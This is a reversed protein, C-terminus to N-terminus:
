RLSRKLVWAAESQEHLTVPRSGGYFDSCSREWAAEARNTECSPCETVQEDHPDVICGCPRQEWGDALCTQCLDGSTLQTACGTCAM